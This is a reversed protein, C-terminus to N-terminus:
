RSTRTRTGGYAHQGTIRGDRSTIQIASAGALQSLNSAVLGKSDVVVGQVENVVTGGDDLARVKVFSNADVHPVMGVQTEHRAAFLSVLIVVCATALSVASYKWQRAAFIVLAKLKEVFSEAASDKGSKKEAMQYLGRLRSSLQSSLRAPHARYYLLEKMDNLQKLCYLCKQLHDEAKRKEEGSLKKEAFLGILTSDLCGPTRFRDIEKLANKIETEFISM